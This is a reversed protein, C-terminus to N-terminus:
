PSITLTYVGTAGAVATTPAIKYYGASPATFVIQADTTTVDKNDNSARLITTGGSIEYVDLFADFATSTMTITVTQGNLLFVAADDSFFGARACDTTQLSQTTTLGPLVFVDECNAIALSAARVSSLTYSGSTAPAFTGARVVYNAAPLLAKFTSTKQGGGAGIEAVRNGPSQFLILHTDFTPSTETFQYMAAALSGTAYLEVFSGDPMHCDSADLQGNVTNPTSSLPYAAAVTCPDAPTNATATFTTSLGGVSAVLTNNGAQGLTWSGVTAAGAASTTQTGGTVTGGGIGVTFTVSAGGVNNGNVDQVLVSPAIPVATAPDVGTQGDGATKTLTAAAGAIGTASFSVATLSGATASLTNPGATTGLTWSGLTAVGSGNTTAPSGTVSGGGGSAAFVVSVGAVANGHADTVTVAPDTAVASGAVATQGDGASKVVNAAPGAIGTASFSIPTVGAVTVSLTNSGATNGLTWSGVTAVGSANTTAPSGTVSGGGSSAAFAVSVGSVPNGNADKVTVSPDTAVASGAVATQGDGATKTVSAAAGVTGTASFTVATLSASTVVLTNGGVATGLTWTGVTAVGAANTTQVSGTVSGGGVGIAFNVSAGAVANGNADKITVSPPVAVASGAVASQGDGATKIISAAAGATGTASFTVATLTGATASLTNAGVTGGLTWSGVTAVGSANTTQTGGSVSGGGSAVAFTVSVGPVPNGNADTVTISPDVAVASGAIASQADGASKAVNAPAGVIGTASCTVATLTGSTAVLTNAGVSGLTWGGVTAVGAANTTTTGGTV